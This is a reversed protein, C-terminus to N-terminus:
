TIGIQYLKLKMMRKTAQVGRISQRASSPSFASLHDTSLHAHPTECFYTMTLEPQILALGSKSM